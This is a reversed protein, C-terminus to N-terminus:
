LNRREGTAESDFTRAASFPVPGRMTRYNSRTACGIWRDGKARDKPERQLVCGRLTCRLNETGTMSRFLLQEHVQQGASFWTDLARISSGLVHKGGHNLAPVRDVWVRCLKSQLASAYDFLVSRTWRDQQQFFALFWHRIEDNERYIVSQLSRSSNIDGASLDRNLEQSRCGLQNMM